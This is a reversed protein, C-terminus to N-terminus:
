TQQAKQEKTVSSCRGPLYNLNSVRWQETTDRPTTARMHVLTDDQLFSWIYTIVSYACNAVIPLLRSKDDSVLVALSATSRHAYM